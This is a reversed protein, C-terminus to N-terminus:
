AALVTFNAVDKSITSAGLKSDKSRMKSSRITKSVRAIAYAKRYAHGAYLERTAHATTPEQNLTPNEANRVRASHRLKISHQSM